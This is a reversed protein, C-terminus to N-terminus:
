NLILEHKIDKFKLIKKYKRNFVIILSIINIKLNKMLGTRKYTNFILINM